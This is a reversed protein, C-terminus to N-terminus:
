PEVARAKRVRESKLWGYGEAMVKDTLYTLNTAQRVSLYGTTAFLSIRSNVESILLCFENLNRERDEFSSNIRRVLDLATCAKSIAISYQDYRIVRSVSKAYVMLQKCLAFTDKYIQLSESKM